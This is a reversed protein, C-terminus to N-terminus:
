KAIYIYEHSLGGKTDKEYNRCAAILINKKVFVCIYVAYLAFMVVIVTKIVTAALTVEKLVSIVAEATIYIFGGTGRAYKEKYLERCTYRLYVTWVNKIIVYIIFLLFTYITNIHAIGVNDFNLFLSTMYQLIIGVAGFLIEVIMVLRLKARIYDRINGPVMYIVENLGKELYERTFCWVVFILETSHINNYGFIIYMILLILATKGAAEIVKLITSKRTSLFIEKLEFLALKEM